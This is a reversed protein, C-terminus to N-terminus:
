QQTSVRMFYGAREEKAIIYNHRDSMLRYGDYLPINM